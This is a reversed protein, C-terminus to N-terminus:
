SARDGFLVAHHLIRVPPTGRGSCQANSRGPIRVNGVLCTTLPAHQGLLITQVNQIRRAHIDDFIRTGPAIILIRTLVRKEGTLDARSDHLPQLRNTHRTTRLVEDHVVPLRTTRSMIHLHSRTRQALEVQRREANADFLGIDPTHHSRIILHIALPATGILLGHAIDGALLPAIVTEKHRVPTGAGSSRVHHHLGPHIQFQRSVFSHAVVHHFPRDLGSCEGFLIHILPDTLQQPHLKFIQGIESFVRRRSVVAFRKLLHHVM